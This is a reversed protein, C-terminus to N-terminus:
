EDIDSASNLVVSLPAANAEGVKVVILPRGSRHVGRNRIATEVIPLPEALTAM